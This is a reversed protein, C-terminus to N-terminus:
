HRHPPASEQHSCLFSYPPRHGGAIEWNRCNPRDCVAGVTFNNQFPERLGSVIPLIIAGKLGAKWISSHIHLDASLTKTSEHTVQVPTQACDVAWSLPM